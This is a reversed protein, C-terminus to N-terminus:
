SIVLTINYVNNGLYIRIIYTFKATYYVSPDIAPTNHRLTIPLLLHLSFM